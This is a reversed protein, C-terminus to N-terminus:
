KQGAQLLNQFQGLLLPYKSQLRAWLYGLQEQNLESLLNMWKQKMEILKIRKYSNTLGGALLSIGGIILASLLDGNFAEYGSWALGGTKAIMEGKDLKIGLDYLYNIDKKLEVAVCDIFQDGDFSQNGITIQSPFPQSALADHADTYKAACSDCITQDTQVFGGCKCCIRPM